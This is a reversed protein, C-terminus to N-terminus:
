DQLDVGLPEIRRYILPMPAQRRRPAEGYRGLLRPNLFRQIEATSM